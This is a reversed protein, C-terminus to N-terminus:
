ASLVPGYLDQIKAYFAARSPQVDDALGRAAAMAGFFVQGQMTEEDVTAGARARGTTVAKTFEAYVADVDAQLHARQEDSLSTGPHGIAKLRGAKILELKYGEKAWAESSDIVATYVGISGLDASTTCIIETCQSALWYGASCSRTDTFAVIPKIQSWEAIQQALEPVGTVVGGPPHLELVVANSRPDMVASALEESVADLDCGGGCEIEMSSLRKGIIGETTVVRIGKAANAVIKIEEMARKPREKHGFDGALTDAGGIRAALVDRIANLTEPMVAWRASRFAELIHPYRVHTIRNTNM